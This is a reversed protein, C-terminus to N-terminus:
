AARSFQSECTFLRSPNFPLGSRYWGILKRLFLRMTATMAKSASMTEKKKHYYPGLLRDKKM